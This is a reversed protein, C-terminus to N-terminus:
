LLLVSVVLLSVICSLILLSCAMVWMRTELAQIRIGQLELEIGDERIDRGAVRSVNNLNGGNLDLDCPGNDNSDPSVLLLSPRGKLLQNPHTM